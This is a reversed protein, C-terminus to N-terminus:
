KWPKLKIRIMLNYIGGIVSGLIFGYIFGEALGIFAGPVSLSYGPFLKSLFVWGSNGQLLLVITAFFILVGTTIGMSLGLYWPHIKRYM